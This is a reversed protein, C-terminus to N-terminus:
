ERLALANYCDALMNWTEKDIEGTPPLGWLKQLARIDSGTKEDLVGNMEVSEPLEYVSSLEEIMAQLIYILPMRDGRCLKGGCLRREFPRIAAPRCVSKRAELYADYLATWTAYDVAGTQELKKLGQFVSVAEKTREGFIGDPVVDPLPMGCNKLAALWEQVTYVAAERDSRNKHDTM